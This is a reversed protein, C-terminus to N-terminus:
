YRKIANKNLKRFQEKRFEVNLIRGVGGLFFDIILQHRRGRSVSEPHIHIYINKESEDDDM